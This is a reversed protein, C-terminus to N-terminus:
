ASRGRGHGGGDGAASAPEKRRGFVPILQSAAGAHQRPPMPMGGASRRERHSPQHRSVKTLKTEKNSPM